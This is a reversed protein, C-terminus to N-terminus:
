PDYSAATTMEIITEYIAATTIEIITLLLVHITYM